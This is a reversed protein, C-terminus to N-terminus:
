LNCMMDELNERVEDQVQEKIDEFRTANMYELLITRLDYKSMDNYWTAIFDYERDNDMAQLFKEIM